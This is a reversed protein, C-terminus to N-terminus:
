ANRRLSANTVLAGSGIIIESELTFNELFM